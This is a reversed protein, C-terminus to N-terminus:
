RERVPTTCRSGTAGPRTASRGPDETRRPGRGPERAGSAAPASRRDPARRRAGGHAPARDAGRVRRGAALAQGVPRQSRASCGRGVPDAGDLSRLRRVLLRRARTPDPHRGSAAAAAVEERVARDPHRLNQPERGALHWAGARDPATIGSGRRDSRGRGDFAGCGPAPQGDVRRRDPHPRRASGAGPSGAGVHQCAAGAM